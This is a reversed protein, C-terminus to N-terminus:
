GFGWGFWRSRFVPRDQQLEYILRMLRQEKRLPFAIIM